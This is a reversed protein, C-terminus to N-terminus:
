GRGAHVLPDEAGYDLGSTRAMERALVAVQELIEDPTRSLDLPWEVLDIETNRVRRLVPEGGQAYILWARRVGLATCYALMQYKDANPYRGTSSAAKYKADAVIVPTGGVRHVIDIDMRVAAVQPQWEDLSSPDQEVTSGPFDKLAERLAVAVFDEYVKWMPVVFSAARIAGHDISFSAHRLVLEALVLAPQYHANVRSPHWAPTADGRALVGVECMQADLSAVDRATEADLHPLEAVRRLATRLIQNEAIDASYDDYSVELPTWVGPRRAIQDGLRIRGRVTRSADDIAVYGRHLGGAVARGAQRALARAIAAFLDDESKAGVDEARYGPDRAYGLLFLVNGIGVKDKPRVEVQADGVRSAGVAGNPVLRYRSRGVPRVDVLGSDALVVASAEDLAVVVGATDLEDLVIREAM